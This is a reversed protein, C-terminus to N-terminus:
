KAFLSCGIFVILNVVIISAGTPLAFIFSIIVGAMFCLLSIVGAAITVGKYSKAIRMASLAPFILLGSILMAGVLRLGIVIILATMVSLVARYKDSKIGTATAFPEDFTVAFMRNYFCIYLALMIVCAVIGVICDQKSMSLISGFMYNNVDTTMGTTLSLVIVGIALASTSVVAIAADAKVEGLNSIRLLCFAAVIVIPIAVLLPAFGLVTAIALASFGVHSLGDGIMSFRKLVLCVGLLAAVLAILSGATLARVMFPFQFMQSLLGNM